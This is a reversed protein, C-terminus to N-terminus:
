KSELFKKKMKANIMRKIKQVYKSAVDVGLQYAQLMAKKSWDQEDNTSSISITYDLIDTNKQRELEHKNQMLGFSCMIIKVVSNIKQKKVYKPLVDVAIVFDAGMDKVVDFPINNIVGGDVLMMGDKKVPKFLGPIATSAMIAEGFNGKKFIYPKGTYLDVSVCRFPIKTKELLSVNAIQELYAPMKDTSFIGDKLISFVNLKTMKKIDFDNLTEVMKDASMGSAYLGGIVSGMSTGAICDIKIGNEELVKLVGIHAFGLAAGGGLAIGIKFKKGNKTIM